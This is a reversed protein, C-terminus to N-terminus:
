YDVSAFLKSHRDNENNHPMVILGQSEYLSIVLFNLLLTNRHEGYVCAKEYGGKGTASSIFDEREYIEWVVYKM